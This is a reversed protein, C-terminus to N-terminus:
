LTREQRVEQRCVRTRGSACVGGGVVLEVGPKRSGEIPGSGLVEARTNAGPGGDVRTGHIGPSRGVEGVTGRKGWSEVRITGSM